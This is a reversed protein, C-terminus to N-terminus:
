KSWSVIKQWFTKKYLVDLDSQSPLNTSLTSLIKGNKDIIQAEFSLKQASAKSTLEIDVSVNNELDIEQVKMAVEEGKENFVKISLDAIQSDLPTNADFPIPTGAYEVHVTFDTNKKFTLKNSNINRITAIPGSIIYRFPVSEIQYGESNSFVVNGAYVLPDLNTPLAIKLLVNDENNTIIKQPDLSMIPEGIQTRNYLFTQATIVTSSATKPIEMSLVANSEKNIFIEEEPLFKQGDVIIAINKISLQTSIAKGKILIPAYAQAVVTGDTLYATVMVSANGTVSSPLKYTFPINRKSNAELYLIEKQKEEGILIGGYAEKGATVSVSYMGDSQRNPMVNHITFQGKLEEGVQYSTNSTAVPYIYVETRASVLFPISLVTLFLAARLIHKMSKIIDYTCFLAGGKPRHKTLM